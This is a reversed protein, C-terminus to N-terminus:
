KTNTTSGISISIVKDWLFWDVAVVAGICRSGSLVVMKLHAYSLLGAHVGYQVLDRVERPLPAGNIYTVLTGALLVAAAGSFIGVVGWLLWGRRISFPNRL